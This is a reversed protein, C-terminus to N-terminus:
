PLLATVQYAKIVNSGVSQPFKPDFKTAYKSNSLRFASRLKSLTAGDAYAAATQEPLDRIAEL